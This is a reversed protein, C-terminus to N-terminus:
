KGNTGCKVGKGNRKIGMDKRVKGKTRGKLEGKFERENGRQGGENGTREM